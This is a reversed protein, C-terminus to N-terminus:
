PTGLLSRILGISGLYTLVDAWRIRNDRPIYVIDGDQVPVNQSFDGRVFKTMDVTKIIPKGDAGQRILGINNQASRELPSGARIVADFIKAGDDFEYAGPSAVAGLVMIKNQLAPVMIVDGPEVSVNVSRDGRNLLRDLDIPIVEGTSKRTLTARRLAARPTVGASIMVELMTWGRQIELQGTRGVQGVLYVYSRPYERVTVTVQPNRLYAKLAETLRETLQPVTLGAAQIEGVLPLTIKGNPGITVTRSLDSEGFVAIDIGDGLNLVYERPPQQAFARSGPGGAPGVQASLVVAAIGLIAAVWARFRPRRRGAM